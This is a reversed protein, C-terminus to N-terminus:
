LLKHPDLSVFGLLRDQRFAMKFYGTSRYDRLYGYNEREMIVTMLGHARDTFTLYPYSKVSYYKVRIVKYRTGNISRYDGKGDRKGNKWGGTYEDGNEYHLKGEGHFLHMHFYGSYLTGDFKSLVGFGALLCVIEILAISLSHLLTGHYKGGKWGGEYRSGNKYTMVGKGYPEGKHFTGEYVNGSSAYFRVGKGEIEDDVFSGEYYSGDKM